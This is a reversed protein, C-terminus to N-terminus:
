PSNFCFIYTVDSTLSVSKLHYPSNYIIFKQNLFIEILKTDKAAAQVDTLGFSYISKTRQMFYM